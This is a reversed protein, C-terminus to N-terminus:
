SEASARSSESEAQPGREARLDLIPGDPTGSDREELRTLRQLADLSRAAEQAGRLAEEALARADPPLGPNRALLEAYGVTLALQNNLEHQATRAALLVGALRSRELGSLAAAATSALLELTQVDEDTFCKGSRMRAIALTGQLRGEHLLPVAVVSRAGARGGSTQDGIDGQYDNLIVPQQTAAARGSASRDPDMVTGVEGPVTLDFMHVLEQREPHWRAISGDDGDFMRVAEQLLAQLLQSPDAEGALRRGIRLLAEQRLQHQVERTVDTAVGIVSTVAGREDRIPEYRTEFTLGNSLLTSRATFAYGDLAHRLNDCVRPEDRYVDFASMGVVEGPQIGLAALGKGESQTFRGQADVAFLVVPVNAVLARLRRESKELAEEARKRETVDLAIGMAGTVNGEADRVAATSLVLEVPSGDKRQRTVEMTMVEGEFLRAQYAEFEEAKEPPVIPHRRGLVEDARWGFIREAAPNWRRVVRNRDLLVIAPPSAQIVAELERQTRQLADAEAHRATADRLSVSLGDNAPYLHVDLWRGCEADFLEVSSAQRHALVRRAEKEFAAHGALRRAHRLEAGLLEERPQGLLEEAAGNVYTFRSAADLAIFGDGISELANSLHARVREAETRAVQERELAEREVQAQKRETVDMGSGVYGALTGDAAFRPIGTDLIWRYQGDHRRLRYESQYPEGKEFASEYTALCRDRDEASVSRLWGMGLADKLRMGTLELWRKNLYTFRRDPGSTWMLM